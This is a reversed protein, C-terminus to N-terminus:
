RTGRATAILTNLVQRLQRTMSAPVLGAGADAFQAFHELLGLLAPRAAFFGEADGSAAARRTLSTLAVIKDATSALLVAADDVVTVPHGTDLALHELELARVIRVVAPGYRHELEADLDLNAPAFEPSDHLLVAAVLKPDPDTVHEGLAVAVRVAHVLAPREDIVHGSCWRRADALARDVIAPRPPTLLTM